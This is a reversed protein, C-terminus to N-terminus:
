CGEALNEALYAWGNLRSPPATSIKKQEVVGQIYETHIRDRQCDGIEQMDEQM